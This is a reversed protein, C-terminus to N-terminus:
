PTPRRLFALAADGWENMGHNCFHAHGERPTSGHPPFIRMAHPKKAADMEAALAISPATDFDNEAQIFFVPARAARVARRLREQLAKSHAWTMAGGAFDLAAYVHESREAALVTEIGGFSCGAVAIRAQDAFPQTRAWEIAGLVDDNEADLLEIVLRERDQPNKKVEDEWYPGESGAAGRRYPFLVVFGKSQFFRGLDGSYQLSPNRESGHNYVLVPFPGKGAPM